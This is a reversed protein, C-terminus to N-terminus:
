WSLPNKIVLELEFHQHGKVLELTKGRGRVAMSVIVEKYRIEVM